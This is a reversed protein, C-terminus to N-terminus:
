VMVLATLLMMEEKTKPCRKSYLSSLKRLTRFNSLSATRSLPEAWVWTMGMYVTVKHERFWSHLRDIVSTDRWTATRHRGQGSSTGAPAGGSRGRWSCLSWSTGASPFLSAGPPTSRQRGELSYQRTGPLSRSPLINEVNEIFSVPVCFFEDLIDYWLM